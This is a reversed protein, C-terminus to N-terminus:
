FVVGVAIFQGREIIRFKISARAPMPNIEVPLSEGRPSVRGLGENNQQRKLHGLGCNVICISLDAFASEIHRPYFYGDERAAM